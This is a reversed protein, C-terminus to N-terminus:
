HCARRIPKGCRMDPPRNLEAAHHSAASVRSRTPVLAPDIRMLENPTPVWLAGAAFYIQSCSGLFCSDPQIPVSGLPSGADQSFRLVNSFGPGAVMLWVSGNGVTVASTLGGYNAPDYVHDVRGTVPNIKAVHDDSTLAWVFGDAYQLARAGALSVRHGPDAAELSILGFRNEIVAGVGSSTTFWVGHPSAAVPGRVGVPDVQGEQRGTRPDIRTVYTGAPRGGSGCEAYLNGSSYALASCQAGTVHLSAVIRGSAPNV